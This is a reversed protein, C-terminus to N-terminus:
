GHTYGAMGFSMDIEANDNYPWIDSSAVHVRYQFCTEIIQGAIRKNRHDTTNSKAVAMLNEFIRGQDLETRISSDPHNDAFDVLTKLLNVIGAAPGHLRIDRRSFITNLQKVIGYEQFVKIMEAKNTSKQIMSNVHDFLRFFGNMDVDCVSITLQEFVLSRVLSVPFNRMKSAATGAIWIMRPKLEFNDSYRVCLDNLTQILDLRILEASIVECYEYNFFSQITDISQDVVEQDVSRLTNVLAPIIGCKVAKVRDHPYINWFIIQLNKIFGVAVSGNSSELRSILRSLVIGFNEDDISHCVKSFLDIALRLVQQDSEHVIIEVMPKIDFQDEQSWHRYSYVETCANIAIQNNLRQSPKLRDYSYMMSAFVTTFEMVKIQLSPRNYELYKATIDQLGINQLRQLVDTSKYSRNYLEQILDLLRDWIEDAKYLQDDTTLLKLDELHQILKRISDVCDM